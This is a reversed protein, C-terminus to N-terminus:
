PINFTNLLRVKRGDKLTFEKREPLRLGRAVPAREARIRALVPDDPGPAMETCKISERWLRHSVPGATVTTIVGGADDDEGDSLLAKIGEGMLQASEAFTMKDIKRMEDTANNEGTEADYNMCKRAVFVWDHVIYAPGFGWANFGPISQVARPVSGGDTYFAEPQIVASDGSPTNDKNRKFVLPENDDPVYLFQGDGLLDGRGGEIWYLKVLGSFEGRAVSNYNVPACAGVAMALGAVIRWM